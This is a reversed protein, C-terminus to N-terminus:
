INFRIEHNLAKAYTNLFGVTPNTKGQEFRSVAAQNSGITKALQSQTQGALLRAQRLDAVLQQYSKIYATPAVPEPERFTPNHRRTYYVSGKSGAKSSIVFERNGHEDTRGADPRSFVTGLEGNM